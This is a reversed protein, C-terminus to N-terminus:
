NRDRAWVDDAVKDMTEWMTKGKLPSTPVSGPRRSLPGLRADQAQKKKAEETAKAQAEASKKAEDKALTDPDARRAAKYLQELTAKPNAQLIGVMLPELKDFDPQEDPPLAGKFKEIDGAKEEARQAQMVRQVREDVLAEVNPQQYTPGPQNINQQHPSQRGYMRYIEGIAQDFNVSLAHDAASLRRYHEHAPIGLERLRGEFPKAVEEFVGLSKLREGDTTIKQHVEGERKAWYSQVEPPLSQWKAKVDAPLSQPAEIVPPAPDPPAAQPSGPVGAQPADPAEVSPQFKGDPGRKGDFIESAVRDFTQDFTEKPTEAVPAETTEVVQPTEVIEDAM